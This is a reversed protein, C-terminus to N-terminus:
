KKNKKILFVPAENKLVFSPTENYRNVAFLDKYNKVQYLDFEKRIYYDLQDSGDEDWIWDCRFSSKLGSWANEDEQLGLESANGVIAWVLNSVDDGLTYDKCSGYQFDTIEEILKHRNIFYLNLKYLDTEEPLKTRFIKEDDDDYEEEDEEDEDEEEENNEQQDDDDTDEDNNDDCDSRSIDKWENQGIKQYAYHWAWIASTLIGVVLSLVVGPMDTTEM